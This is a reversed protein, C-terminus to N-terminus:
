NLHNRLATVAAKIDAAADTGHSDHLVHATGTNLDISTITLGLHQGKDAEYDVTADGDDRTKGSITILREATEIEVYTFGRDFGPQGGEIAAATLADLIRTSLKM